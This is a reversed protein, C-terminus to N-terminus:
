KLVEVVFQSWSELRDFIEPSSLQEVTVWEGELQETERVEVNGSAEIDLIVLLGIHVKGVENVDDNILGVTTLTRAASQIDLEEVLERELNFELVQSWDYAESPGEPRNMHGGAGISLKDHLRSEGGAVLRKYMFIENGRRIVCYPIPQKFSADEEADGRRMTSWHQAINTEIQYVKEKDREIGQFALEENNFVKTRPAVIIIEDMKGM